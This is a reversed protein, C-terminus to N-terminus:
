LCDHNSFVIAGYINLGSNFNIDKLMGVRM